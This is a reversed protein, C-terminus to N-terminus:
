QFNCLQFDCLLMIVWFSAASGVLLDELQNPLGALGLMRSYISAATILFSGLYFAPYFVINRLLIM